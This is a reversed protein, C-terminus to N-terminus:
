MLPEVDGGDHDPGADEEVYDDNMTDAHEPESDAQHMADAGWDYDGTAGAGMTADPADMGGRIDDIAATTDPADASAAAPYADGADSELASMREALAEEAPDGGLDDLQEELLREDESGAPSTEDMETADMETADTDGAEKWAEYADPDERMWYREFDEGYNEQLRQMWDDPYQEQYEALTGKGVYDLLGDTYVDEVAGQMQADRAGAAMDDAYADTEGADADAETEAVDEYPDTDAYTETDADLDYDTQEAYYDPTEVAEPPTTTAVPTAAQSVVQGVQTRAYAPQYGLSQFTSSVYDGLGSETGLASQESAQAQLERMEGDDLGLDQLKGAPDAEGERFMDMLFGLADQVSVAM